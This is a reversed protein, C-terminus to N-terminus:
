IFFSVCVLQQALRQRRGPWVFTRLLSCAAYPFKKLPLLLFFHFLFFYWALSELSPMSSNLVVGLMGLMKVLKKLARPLMGSLKVV